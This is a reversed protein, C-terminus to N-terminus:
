ASVKKTLSENNEDRKTFSGFNKLIVGMGKLFAYEFFQSLAIIVVTWAFLDYTELYIKAQYLREGISGRPLAIVEAAIGAKWSLGLSLQCATYFFPMVQYLYIYRVLRYNGVKFLSAMELLKRDSNRVGQLVNTYVVPFSMLFSIFISLNRSPIWILALIIFSAVPTSKVVLVIPSLLEEIRDFRAAFGALVVGSVAAGIFGIVIRIFSFGVARWFGTELALEFIRLGAKFPSVLLIEQKLIMSAIQWIILLVAIAWLKIGSKQGIGNNDRM